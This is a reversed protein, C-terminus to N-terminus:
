KTLNTLLIYTFAGGLYGILALLSFRKLFWFFSIKEMGMAAIGAASGIILISGGTGSAYALFEWFYHDTPYVNLSYMGQIAAVLPVNDIVSSFFGIILILVNQNSVHGSLALAWHNLLGCSELASVALLIGLFFLITPINLRRLAATVSLNVKEKDNKNRHLIEIFTWIIGLSLLMGMFPPLHTLSKFLPVILLGGTGVILVTYRVPNSIDSIKPQNKLMIDTSDTRKIMFTAISLPIIISVLSPLILRQIINWATIQGGIWLMSTTVDGLPSWAGGSNAAIIIIGTFIWREKEDKVLARTMLIMVITTTLNDLVASLFFTILGIIWLLTRKNDSKLQKSIISFGDHADILEVITMAGLLFFLIGAIEGMHSMLKGSITEISAGSLIYIIWCVVGTIIASAAKDIKIKKEFVIFSYGLIFAITILSYIM